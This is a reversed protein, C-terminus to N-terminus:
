SLQSLALSATELDRTRDGCGGGSVEQSAGVQSDPNETACPNCVGEPRIIAKRWVKEAIRHLGGKRVRAYVNMTMQPDKHRMLDQAEKLNAGCEIVFTDFSNRLGHFDVKGEDTRVPVGAAKMDRYMDRATHTPVYLLPQKPVKLRKGKKPPREAYLAAATELRAEQALVEALAAPLVQYQKRRGKTTRKKLRLERGKVDLDHVTLQRIENARLGTAIATAYLIRRHPPCVALIGRLEEATLARKEEEPETDYETLEVLPNEDIYSRSRCWKIFAVMDNAYSQKTKGTVKKGANKTKSRNRLNRLAREARPLCGKLDSVLRPALQVKWWALHSRKDKRHGDSWPLGGLGGKEDGWEFYEKLAEDLLKPGIKRTDEPEIGLDVLERRRQCEYELRKAIKETEDHSRTGTRWKRKHNEDYYWFRYKAHPEGDQDFTQRVGPM